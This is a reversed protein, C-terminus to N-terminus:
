AGDGGTRARARADGGRGDEGVHAPCTARLPGSETLRWDPPLEISGDVVISNAITGMWEPGSEPHLLDIAVYAACGRVCCEVRLVIAGPGLEPPTLPGGCATESDGEHGQQAAAPTPDAADPVIARDDDM